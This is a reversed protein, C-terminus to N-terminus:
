SGRSLIMESLCQAWAPDSVCSFEIPSLVHANLFALTPKGEHTLIRWNVDKTSRIHSCNLMPKDSAHHGCVSCTFYDALAGMSGTDMEGSLFKQATEPDKTKDIGILGYVVYHKGNGYGKMVRLSTDFIVGIAKEHDENDHELHVPCGTWAKYTLRAIPPPQYAILESLPFAVGNRNPIDSPCIPINVIVYDNLNPSIKYTKAAFPLWSLDIKSTIEAADTIDATGTDNSVAEDARQVVLADNQEPPDAFQEAILELEAKVVAAPKVEGAKSYAEPIRSM